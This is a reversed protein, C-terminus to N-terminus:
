QQRILPAMCTCRGFFKFRDVGEGSESRQELRRLLYPTWSEAILSVVDEPKVSWPGLCLCDSRIRSLRLKRYIRVM